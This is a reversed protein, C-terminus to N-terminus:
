KLFKLRLIVFYFEAELDAFNTDFKFFKLYFSRFKHNLNIFKTTNVNLIIHLNNEQLIRFIIIFLRLQSDQLIVTFRYKTSVKGKIKSLPSTKILQNWQISDYYFRFQDTIISFQHVWSRLLGLSKNTCVLNPNKLHYIAPKLPIIQHKKM